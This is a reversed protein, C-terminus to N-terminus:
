VDELTALLSGTDALRVSHLQKVMVKAPHAMAMHWEKWSVAQGGPFVIEGDLPLHAAHRSLLAVGETLQRRGRPHFLIDIDSTPSLYLLGTLAQMALSGYVRLDLAEADREMATLAQKWPGSSRIAAQLQVAPSMRAIHAAQVRLAIRVKEGTDEDPPLPLGLCVEDPQAGIDLRRVVAPWNQDQWLKLAIRHQPQAARLVERWGDECLWCLMHRELGQSAATALALSESEPPAYM